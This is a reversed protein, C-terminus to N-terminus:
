EIPMYSYDLFRMHLLASSFARSLRNAARSPCHFRACESDGLPYSEGKLPLLSTAIATSPTSATVQIPRIHNKLRKSENQHLTTDTATAM